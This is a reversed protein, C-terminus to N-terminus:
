ESNLYQEIEVSGGARAADLIMELAIFGARSAVFRREREALECGLKLTSVRIIERQFSRVAQWSNISQDQDSM